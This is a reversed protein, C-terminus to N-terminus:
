PEDGAAGFSELWGKKESLTMLLDADKMNQYQKFAMYKNQKWKSVNQATYKSNLLYDLLIKVSERVKERDKMETRKDCWCAREIEQYISVDPVLSNKAKMADEIRLTSKDRHRLNSKEFCYEVAVSVIEKDAEESHKCVTNAILKVIKLNEKNM